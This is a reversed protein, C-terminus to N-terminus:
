LKTISFDDARCEVDKNSIYIAIETNDGSNFVVKGPVYTDADSQDTFDVSTITAADVDDPNSVAGALIAVSITGEPSTKMTYYFDLSYDTEKEVTILQYAIRDGASPFKAAQAGAYVPSSTIQIVGGLDSNRWSDRGDGSGDPLSNDEFGAELIVPQFNSVPKEVVVSQSISSTAGLKDSATLSVTYTGAEAYTYSPNASSSTNGDGFDWAYDTASASLNTFDIQLWNEVNQSYGFNASPPTEDAISGAEPLEFDFISCSSVFITVLTFLVGVWLGSKKKKIKYNSYM